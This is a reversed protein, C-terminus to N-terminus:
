GQPRAAVLGLGKLVILAEFLQFDQQALRKSAAGDSPTQPVPAGNALHRELNAEKLTDGGAAAAAVLLPAVVIDPAIGEAQISHGSPTYYLATTLKIADGEPLPIVTQVSGKGFTQTGLLLARHNDKLAGATIEAASATGGNVLVVLPAGNLVDGATARRVFNSDPARGKASVIVGSNLFADSVAVAADLLGGPNNRLDLVLGKLPAGNQKGLTRVAQPVGAATDDSFQSIRVYGYGPELLRSKVSAIHVEARMLKIDLPKDAARHLVTLTVSSGPPGRMLGVVDDLSMGDLATGNVRLIVDGPRIGARAAPTDDIPSIVVVAGNDMGVELGLGGFNGTTLIQMQQYDTKDLFASHPDLGALMGRIANELLTKDSVPEVYDQKVLQMVDALLRVEQWPLAAPIPSDGSAFALPLAGIAAGLTVGSFFVVLKRYKASM